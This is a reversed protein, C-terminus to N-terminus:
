AAAAEPTRIGPGRLAVPAASAAPTAGDGALVLEVADALTRTVVPADRVEDLRTVPTPVLIARAGAAQAAAVDAGIDGIVLCDQPAVGLRAAAELVMGPRPKRCACGDQPGHPCHLMADFPGLLERVRETVARVQAPELLGRAIGSQNSVVALALGAARLRDLAERVGPLPEVLDPDGNYPVDRVLTGDRDLLVARVPRAAARRGRRAPTARVTGMAWHALAVAPMPVSTAAMRALERPTRPGPAIRAWCLEATGAAWGAGAIAAAAPRRAAAAAVAAAGAATIAAHRRRRGRPVDALERWRPGHKAAMRADDANGRQLQLSATWPADGVPHRVRRRGRTLTWGARRVRLAIDADERYARPFGEDFGGVAELVLRRYAMDATAWAATELGRVHRQRDTPRTGLALPVTIGGQVGGVEPGAAALDDALRDAWDPMVEVDDDVFAVWERRCARWGANRAAAPGRGGSRVVRVRGALAPPVADRAVLEGAGAARRDDVVIVCGGAPPGGAAALADLCRALAARGVSPIVVDVDPSRM